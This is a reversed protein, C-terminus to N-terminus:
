IFMDLNPTTLSIAVVTDHNSQGRRRHPRGGSLSLKFALFVSGADTPARLM